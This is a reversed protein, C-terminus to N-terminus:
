SQKQRSLANLPTPPDSGRSSAYGESLVVSHKSSSKASKPSGDSEYDGETLAAEMLFSLHFVFTRRRVDAASSGFHSRTSASSGKFM